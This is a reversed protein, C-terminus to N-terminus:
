TVPREPTLFIADKFCLTLAYPLKGMSCGICNSYYSERLEELEKPNKSLPSHDDTLVARKLYGVLHNLLKAHLAGWTCVWLHVLTIVVRDVQFAVVLGGLLLFTFNCTLGTQM